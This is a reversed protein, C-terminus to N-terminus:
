NASTDLFAIEEFHSKNERVYRPFTEDIEEFQAAKVVSMFHALTKLEPRDFETHSYSEMKKVYREVGGMSTFHWGADKLLHVKEIGAKRLAKPQQNRLRRMLKATLRKADRYTM